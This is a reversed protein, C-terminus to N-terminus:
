THNEGSRTRQLSDLSLHLVTGDAQVRQPVGARPWVAVSTVGPPAPYGPLDKEEGAGVEEVLGAQLGKLEKARVRAGSAGEAPPGVALSEQSSGATGTQNGTAM